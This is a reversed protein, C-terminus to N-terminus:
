NSVLIVNDLVYVKNSFLDIAALTPYGLVQPTVVDQIEFEHCEWFTGSFRRDIRTDIVSGIWVEMEMFFARHRPLAESLDNVIPPPTSEM